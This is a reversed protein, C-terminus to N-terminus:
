LDLKNLAVHLALRVGQPNPQLFVNNIIISHMPIFKYSSFQQTLPPTCAEVYVTPHVM